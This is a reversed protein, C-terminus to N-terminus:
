ARFLALQQIGEPSTQPLLADSLSLGGGVLLRVQEYEEARNVTTGERSPELVLVEDLGISEDALLDRSHTSVVIQRGGSRQVNAFLGPIHRM